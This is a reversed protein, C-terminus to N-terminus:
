NYAYMWTRWKPERVQTIMNTWCKTELRQAPMMWFPGKAGEIFYMLEKNGFQLIRPHLGVEWTITDQMMRVSGGDLVNMNQMHLSDIQMRRQGSPQYFLFALDFQSVITLLVDVVDEVQVKAHSLAIGIARM